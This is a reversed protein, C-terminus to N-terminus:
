RQKKNDDQRDGLAPVIRRLIELKYENKREEYSLKADYPFSIKFKMKGLVNKIEKDDLTENATSRVLPGFASFFIASLMLENRSLDQWTPHLKIRNKYKKAVTENKAFIEFKKGDFRIVCIPEEKQRAAPNGVLVLTELKM